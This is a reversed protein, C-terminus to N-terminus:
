PQWEGVRRLAGLACNLDFTEDRGAFTKPRLIDELMAFASVVAGGLLFRVIYESM